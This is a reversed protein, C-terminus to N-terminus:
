LPSFLTFVDTLTIFCEPLVTVPVKTHEDYMTTHYYGQELINVQVLKKQPDVIWYERVGASLYQWFKVQEDHEHNSPSLVEMILNPAGNCGREDLRSRDCIVVIDPEVVTDDRLNAQPFLRVAFPAVFARCSKKKLFDRLQGFLEGVVWQHIASPAAMMYVVGDIIEIRENENWGLYDTYTYSYEDPREALATLAM